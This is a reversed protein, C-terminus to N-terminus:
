FGIFKVTQEYDHPKNALSISVQKFERWLNFYILQCQVVNWSKSFLGSAMWSVLDFGANFVAIHRESVTLALGDQFIDAQRHIDALGNAM